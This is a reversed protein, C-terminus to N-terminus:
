CASTLVTSDRGPSLLNASTFCFGTTGAAAGAVGIGIGSEDVLGTGIGIGFGASGYSGSGNLWNGALAGYFIGSWEFGALGFQAPRDIISKIYTIKVKAM